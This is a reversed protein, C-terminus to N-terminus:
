WDPPKLAAKGAVVARDRGALDPVVAVHRFGAARCLDAVAAGQTSGCEMVFYGDAAIRDLAEPILERYVQLGDPGAALAEEPEGWGRSLADATEQVTLYPPNATVLDVTSAGQLGPAATVTYTLHGPANQLLHDANHRAWQLAAPSSDSLELEVPYGRNILERAVAIGICGSGTCCDRYRLVPSDKLVRPFLDVTAAVVTETDPRPILVGPGVAFPLGWFERVGTIYAIPCGTARKVVAARIQEDVQRSILQHYATPLEALLSERPLGSAWSVILLADLWPSESVRSIERSIEQLM